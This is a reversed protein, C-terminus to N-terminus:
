RVGSAIVVDVAEEPTDVVTILDLDQPSIKADALLVQRMWDLLPGWFARGVLVIPFRKVKGTQM